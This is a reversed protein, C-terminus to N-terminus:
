NLRYVAVHDREVAFIRGDDHIAIGFPFSETDIMGQYRGDSDYVQIGFIDGVLVRGNGDVAISHPANLTGPTETGPTPSGGFRTIYRGGPDFKLVLNAFRGLAYINGLGDAAVIPLMEQSGTAGQFANPIRLVEDGAANLRVIDDEFVALWGGDAMAHITDDVGQGVSSPIPGFPQGNNAAFQMLGSNQPVVLIGNRDAAINAVYSVDPITWQTVFTGDEEFVQVRGTSYESVYVKGDNSLAIGRADNFRGPGVGESGFQYLKTAFGPTPTATPLLPIQINTTIEQQVERLLSSENGFFQDSILRFMVGPAAFAIIALGISAIMILWFIGRICGGGTSHEYSHLVKQPNQKYVRGFPAAMPPPSITNGMELADVADRAERLGVGFADRYLRVAAVKQGHRAMHQVTQLVNLVDRRPYTVRDERRERDDDGASAQQKPRLTEPVIVNNGCYPCGVLSKVGDYELPANCSPCQFLQTM